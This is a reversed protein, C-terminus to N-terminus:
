SGKVNRLSDVFRELDKGTRKETVAVLLEKDREPYFWELPIGALIKNDELKKMLDIAREPTRVVFENFFPGPYVLDFGELQAIKGALYHAKQTCLDAVQVVGDRGLLSMYVLSALACLAQNTCINSTAKERRIHQERTQLTLVYGTKGDADKTRAVLRGPIKRVFDKKTAFFGVGPGGYSMTIGLPQGEGVCIDVDFEGPPKLIGLSIPNVVDILLAKGLAPKLGDLDEILGFFNPSQIILCAVDDGLQNKLDARDLCGEHAAVEKMEIDMGSTYTKVVDRYLPNLGSAYLVKKRRTHAIALLVAEATASAGDYVSANVVDMSTLRAISSQFEYISQLTGQSVEAQYPTYATQFEPRTIISSVVAPVYHDYMGGGLYTDYEESSRNKGAMQGLYRSVEMESMAPPLDLVGSFRLHEPIADLLDELKEVGIERLMEDREERSGPVYSM